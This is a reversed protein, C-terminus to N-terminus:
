NGGKKLEQLAEERAKKARDSLEKLQNVKAEDKEIEGTIKNRIKKFDVIQSPKKVVYNGDKDAGQVARNEFAFNTLLEHEDISRLDYAQERLHLEDMTMMEVQEM